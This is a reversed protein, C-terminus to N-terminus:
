IREHNRRLHSHEVEDFDDMVKYQIPPRNREFTVALDVPSHDRAPDGSRLICVPFPRNDILAKM